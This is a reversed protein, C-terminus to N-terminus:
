AAGVPERRWGGPFRAGGSEMWAMLAHRRWFVKKGIHFCVGPPALGERAVRWLVLRTVGTLEEAEATTLTERM